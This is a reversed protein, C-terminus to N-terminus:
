RGNQLIEKVQDALTMPSFPKAIVGVAGRELYQKVEQAQVRATMFVVPIEALAPVAKMAEYTELGDMDPMMVDLLVIDPIFTDLELLAERGSSCIRVKFGGIQELALRAITQIDREDEVYLIQIPENM